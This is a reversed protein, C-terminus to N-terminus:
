VYMSIRLYKKAEMGTLRSGTFMHLAQLWSELFKRPRDIRLSQGQSGVPGDGDTKVEVSRSSNHQVMSVFLNWAQFDETTGWSM